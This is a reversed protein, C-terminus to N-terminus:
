KRNESPIIIIKSSEQPAKQRFCIVHGPKKGYLFDKEFVEPKGDIDLHIYSYGKAITENILDQTKNRAQTIYKKLLVEFHEPKHGDTIIQHYAIEQPCFYSFGAAEFVNRFLGFPRQTNLFTNNCLYHVIINNKKLWNAVNKATIKLYSSVDNNFYYLLNASRYIDDIIIAATTQVNKYNPIFEVDSNIKELHNLISKEIDKTAQNQQNKSMKFFAQSYHWISNKTRNDFYDFIKKFTWNM